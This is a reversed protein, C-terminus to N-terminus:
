NEQTFMLFTIRQKESFGRTARKFSGRMRMQTIRTTFGSSIRGFM